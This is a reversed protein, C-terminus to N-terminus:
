MVSSGAGNAVAGTTILPSNLLGTSGTDTDGSYVMEDTSMQQMANMADYKQTDIPQGLLQSRELEISTYSVEMALLRLPTVVREGNISIGPITNSNPNLWPKGTAKQTGVSGFNSRMFSTSENAMTIGSRLKIDRQWTTSFLPEYLKTDLNDLQNIFYALTSDKTRFRM